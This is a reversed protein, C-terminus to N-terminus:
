FFIERSILHLSFFRFTAALIWGVINRRAEFKDCLYQMASASRTAMSSDSGLRCLWPQRCNCKKRVLVFGRM